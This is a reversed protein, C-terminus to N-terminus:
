FINKFMKQSASQHLEVAAIPAASALLV